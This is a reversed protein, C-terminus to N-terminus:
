AIATHLFMKKMKKMLPYCRNTEDNSKIPLFYQLAFTEKELAFYEIQKPYLCVFCGDLTIKM